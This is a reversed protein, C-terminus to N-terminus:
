TQHRRPSSKKPTQEVSSARPLRRFDRRITNARTNQPSSDNTAPRKRQGTCQEAFDTQKESVDTKQDVCHTDESIGQSSVFVVMQCNRNVNLSQHGASKCVAKLLRPPRFYFHPSSGNEVAQWEYRGEVPKYKQLDFNWKRQCAEMEQLHKKLDRNLEEHNVLGFLNRCASPKLYDSQRAEMCELIGTNAPIRRFDRKTAEPNRKTIEERGVPM